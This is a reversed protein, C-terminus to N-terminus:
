GFVAPHKKLLAKVRKTRKDARYRKLKKPQGFLAVYTGYHLKGQQICCNCGKHSRNGNAAKRTPFIFARDYRECTKCSGDAHGCRESRPDLRYVPRTKPRKDAAARALAPVGLAGVTLAGRAVFKKRTLSDTM